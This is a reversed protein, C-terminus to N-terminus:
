QKQLIRWRWTGVFLAWALGFVYWSTIAPVVPLVAYIVLWFFTLVALLYVLFSTGLARLFAQIWTRPKKNWLSRTFALVWLSGVTVFCFNLVALQAWGQNPSAARIASWQSIRYQVAWGLFCVWCFGQFRDPTNGATDSEAARASQLRLGGATIGAWLATFGSLYIFYRGCDAVYDV